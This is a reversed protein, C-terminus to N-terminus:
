PLVRGEDGDYCTLAGSVVGTRQRESEPLYLFLTIM